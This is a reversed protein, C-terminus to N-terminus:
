YITPVDNKNSMIYYISSESERKQQKNQKVANEKLVKLWYGNDNLQRQGPFTPVQLRLSLSWNHSKQHKAAVEFNIQLDCDFQDLIDHYM